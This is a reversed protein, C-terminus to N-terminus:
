IGIFVRRRQMEVMVVGWLVVYALAYALSATEAGCCPQLSAAFVGRYLHGKLSAGDVVARTLASDLGVSLFYAALPNRGFATFPRSWRRWGRLELIWQCMALAQAATGTSLLAFSSTWLNKNIPFVRGWALGTLAAVGGAAFMWATRDQTRPVRLWEIDQTIIRQLLDTPLDRKSAEAVRDIVAADIAVREEPKQAALPTAALILLALLLRKM